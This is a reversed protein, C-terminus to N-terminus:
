SRAAAAGTVVPRGGRLAGEVGLLEDHLGADLFHIHEHFARRCAEKAELREIRNVFEAIEDAM